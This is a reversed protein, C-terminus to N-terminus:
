RPAHVNTEVRDDIRRVMRTYISEDKGQRFSERGYSDRPKPEKDEYAPQQQQQQQYGGRGAGRRAYQSYTDNQDFSVANKTKQEQKQDYKTPQFTDQQQQQQSRKNRMYYPQDRDEKHQTIPNLTNSATYPRNSSRDRQERPVEWQNYRSGSSEQVETSPNLTNSATYPRNSSRDRQAESQNYRPGSSEQVETSPNLTNSTTYSRNSSRDRQERPAEWQNHRM